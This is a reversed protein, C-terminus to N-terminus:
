FKNVLILLSYTYTWVLPKMLSSTHVSTGVTQKFSVGFVKGSLFFDLGVRGGIEDLVM